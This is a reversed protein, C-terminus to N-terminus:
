HKPWGEDLAAITNKLVSFRWRTAQLRKGLAWPAPNLANEKTAAALLSLGLGGGGALGAGLADGRRQWVAGAQRFHIRM